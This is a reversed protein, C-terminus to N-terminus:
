NNEYQTSIVELLKKDLYTIIDLLFDYEKGREYKNDAEWRFLRFCTELLYFTSDQLKM